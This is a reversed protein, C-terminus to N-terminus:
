RFQPQGKEMYYDIMDKTFYVERYAQYVKKYQYVGIFGSLAMAVIVILVSKINNMYLEIGKVSRLFALILAWTIWYKYQHVEKHEVKYVHGSQQNLLM